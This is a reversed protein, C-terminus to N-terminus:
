EQEADTEGGGATEGGEGAPLAPSRARAEAVLREAKRDAATVVDVLSSKTNAIEVGQARM